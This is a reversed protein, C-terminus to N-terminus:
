FNEYDENDFNEYDDNEDINCVDMDQTVTPKIQMHNSAYELAIQELDSKQKEKLRDLEEQSSIKNKFKNKDNTEKLFVEHENKLDEICDKLGLESLTHLVDDISIKM